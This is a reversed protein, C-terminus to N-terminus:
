DKAVKDKNNGMDGNVDIIIAIVDGDSDVAFIANLIQNDHTADNDAADQAIEIDGQAGKTDKSNIFLKYTDSDIDYKEGTSDKTFMIKKGDYAKVAAEYFTKDKTVATSSTIKTASIEKVSNITNGEVVKYEILDGKSISSANTVNSSKATLVVPEATTGNWVTFEYYTTNGSKTSSVDETLYGYVTDNDADPLDVSMKIAGIQVYQFGNTKLTLAQGTITKNDDGWAKVAKGTLVKVGDKADVFVTADDAIEFKKTSSQLQKDEYDTLDAAYDDFNGKAAVVKLDYEGDDVTFTCLKAAIADKGATLKMENATPTDTDKVIDKDNVSNITANKVSKGDSFYLNAVLKDNDLGSGAGAKEVYVYDAPDTSTKGDIDYVYGNLVAIKYKSDANFTGSTSDAKTYWTGDIRVETNSKRVAQATGEVVDLKTLTFKDEVSYAKPTVDVFDDKKVEKSIAVDDNDQNGLDKVTISDTGKYTVKGVFHPTATISEYKGNGDNDILTLETAKDLKYTKSDATVTVSKAQLASGNTLDSLKAIDTARNTNIEVASAASALKYTVSNAKVETASTAFVDLDGVIIKATKVDSNVSIGYVVDKKNDKHLLKIKQGVLASYDKEVKTFSAFQSNAEGAINDVNVQYTDKGDEKQVGTLIVNETVLDMYKAGVTPLYGNGLLNMNTYEGDRLVVTNADITNYILQAAYQRPCAATFSTNVDELLGNEDALANTKSAWGAGTLGAKEANYGLTVLLMKAAEQATVKDNPCFKTNSKGAIIGLSQCYKIYGRAWHSGIDTFSTKDDNYASADSKGTRLVYIMKAMQARTVTANPQFSGDEFGEIIGLSVLTDVVDADVKIDAQDTFAAGAFM